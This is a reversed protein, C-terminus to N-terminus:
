QEPRKKQKKRVFGGAKNDKKASVEEVEDEIALGIQEGKNHEKNEERNKKREGETAEKQM